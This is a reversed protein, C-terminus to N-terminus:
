QVPQICAIETRVKISRLNARPVVGTSTAGACLNYVTEISHYVYSLDFRMLFPDYDCAVVIIIYM